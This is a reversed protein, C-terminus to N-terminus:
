EDRDDMAEPLDELSCGTDTCLEMKNVNVHLGIGRAVQELSHLLSEAHFPTNVLLAIDDAYVADTITLAPYRRSRAKKLTCSDEKMRDISKRLVYNQCIIFLYLAFTNGQLVSAVIDFFDTEM